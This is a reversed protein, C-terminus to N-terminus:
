MAEDQKSELYLMFKEYASLENDHSIFVNIKGDRTCIRTKTKDSNPVELDVLLPQNPDAKDIVQFGEGRLIRILNKKDGRAQRVIQEGQKRTLCAM